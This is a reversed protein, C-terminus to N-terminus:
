NYTPLLPRPTPLVFIGKQRETALQQSTTSFVHRMQDWEFGFDWLGLRGGRLGFEQDEQGWKSGDLQVSYDEEPTFLRLRFRDLFLGQPIDRYEEFKGRRSDTPEVFFYRGGAEIDGDAKMGAIVEAFAPSAVAVVAVAAALWKGLMARM